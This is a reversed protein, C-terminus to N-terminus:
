NQYFETKSRKYGMCTHRNLRNKNTRIKPMTKKVFKTALYKTAFEAAPQKGTKEKGVLCSVLRFLDIGRRSLEILTYFDIGEMAKNKALEEFLDFDSTHWEHDEPWYCTKALQTFLNFNGTVWGAKNFLEVGKKALFEFRKQEDINDSCKKFVELGNKSLYKLFSSAGTRYAHCFNKDISAGNKLICQVTRRRRDLTMGSATLAAFFPTLDSHFDTPVSFAGVIGNNNKEDIDQGKEIAWAIVASAGCRAAEILKVPNNINFGDPGGCVVRIYRAFDVFEENTWKKRINTAGYLATLGEKNKINVNAGKAVLYEILCLDLRKVAYHLVTNGTADQANIDIGQEVFFKVLEQRNERDLSFFYKVLRHLLTEKNAGILHIDAGYQVLAKVVDFPISEFSTLEGGILAQLPTDGKNDKANPDAGQQLLFWIIDGASEASRWTKWSAVAVHLGTRGKNDRIKSLDVQEQYKEFREVVEQYAGYYVKHLFAVEKEKQDKLSEMAGTSGFFLVCFFVSVWITLRSKM